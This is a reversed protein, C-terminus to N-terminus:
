LLDGTPRCRHCKWDTNLPQIVVLEPARNAQAIIRGREKDSQDRSLWHTRYFREITVDGTPSFRLMPRAPTRAVYETESPLLQKEMAWARLAEMAEAVRAPKTQIGEALSPLQGQKWRQLTAPDLWGIGTLVDIASTYGQRALASKAADVVRSRLKNPPGSSMSEGEHLVERPQHASHGHVTPQVVM